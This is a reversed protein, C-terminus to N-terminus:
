VNPGDGAALEDPDPELAIKTIHASWSTGEPLNRLENLAAGYTCGRLEQLQRVLRKMSKTNKVPEVM